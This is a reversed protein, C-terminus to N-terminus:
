PNAVSGGKKESRHEEISRIRPYSSIQHAILDSLPQPIDQSAAFESTSVETPNTLGIGGLRASLSLLNRELNNPAKRGSLAPILHTSIIDELPQLFHSINPIGWTHGSVPSALHSLLHPQATAVTALRELEVSWQEVKQKMYSNVREHATVIICFADHPRPNRM